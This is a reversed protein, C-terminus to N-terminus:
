TEPVAAWSAALPWEFSSIRWRSFSDASFIPSESFLDPAPKSSTAAASPPSVPSSRLSDAEVSVGVGVGVSVADGVGAAVSEDLVVPPPALLPFMLPDLEEDAVGELAGAGRVCVFVAVGVCGSVCLTVGVGVCGGVVDGVCVGVAVGDGISVDGVSLFTSLPIDSHLCTFSIKLATISVTSSAKVLTNGYGFEYSTLM